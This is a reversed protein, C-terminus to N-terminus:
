FMYKTNRIEYKLGNREIFRKLDIEYFPDDMYEKVTKVVEEPIDSWSHIASISEYGFCMQVIGDSYELFVYVTFGNEDIMSESVRCHYVDFLKNYEWIM